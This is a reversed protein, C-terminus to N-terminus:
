RKGHKAELQEIRNELDSGEIVKGIQGLMYTLKSADSIDISQSRAERYVRAMESKVDALTDLKCRYRRGKQPPLTEVGGTAGDIEVPQRSTM